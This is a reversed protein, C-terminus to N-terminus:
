GLHPPPPTSQPAMGGGVRLRGAGGRGPEPPLPGPGIARTLMMGRPCAVPTVAKVGGRAEGGDGMRSVGGHQGTQRAPAMTATGLALSPSDARREDWPSRM